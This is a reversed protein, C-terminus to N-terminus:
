CRRRAKFKVEHAFINRWIKELLKLRGSSPLFIVLFGLHTLLNYVYSPKLFKIHFPYYSPIKKGFLFLLRNRFFYANPCSFYLMGNPKLIRFCETFFEIVHIQLHELLHSTHIEDVSNDEFPYPIKNLDHIIDVGKFKKYDVGVAGKVKNIGCGLDLIKM